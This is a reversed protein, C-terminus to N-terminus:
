PESRMAKYHEVALDVVMGYSQLGPTGQSQLYINNVTGTVHSATSDSYKEFFKIYSVIDNYIRPDLKEYLKNREEVSLVKYLAEDLYEFMNLYGSYQMYVDDSETCILYAIFNAENERAIGRQHAMEHAITFVNVYEPYNTNLNAEGTFFTYIGSVHTYTMLPSIALRKVPAKFSTIFSYKESLKDYSETIKSVTESHTYSRVSGGPTFAISDALANLREVTYEATEKLDEVSVEGTVYGLKVDLTTTRYGAAVNFTFVSFLLAVVSLLSVVSRGFGHPHSDMHRFICRLFLFATVPITFIIAEALSFPLVSTVKAFAIRLYRSVTDNFFDAFSTNYIFMIYLVASILGLAFFIRPVVPFCNRFFGKIKKLIKM